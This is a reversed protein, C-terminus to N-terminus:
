LPSRGSPRLLWRATGVDSPSFAIGGWFVQQCRSGCRRMGVSYSITVDLSRNFVRSPNVPLRNSNSTGNCCHYSCYWCPEGSFQLVHSLNRSGRSVVYVLYVSSWIFFSTRTSPMRSSIS